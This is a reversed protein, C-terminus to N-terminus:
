LHEFDCFECMYLIHRQKKRISNPYEVVKEKLFVSELYIM